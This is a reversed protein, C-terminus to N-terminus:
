VVEMKYVLQLQFWLQNIHNFSTLSTQNSYVFEMTNTTLNLQSRKRFQIYQIPDFPIIVICTLQQNKM